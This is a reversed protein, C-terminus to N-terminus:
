VCNDGLHPALCACITPDWVEISNAYVRLLNLWCFVGDNAEDVAFSDRMLKWQNM